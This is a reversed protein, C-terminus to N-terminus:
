SGNREKITGSKIRSPAFGMHKKFLRSFYFEDKYGVSVAAQRVSYGNESLLGAATELRYEILYDIPRIGLVKHFLYSFQEPKKKFHRAVGSLTLPETYHRRIFLAADNIFNLEEAEQKGIESCFLADFLQQTMFNMRFRSRIDHCHSLKLLEELCTNVAEKDMIDLEYASHIFDTGRTLHDYPDYYLNIHCFPESGEVYFTLQKGPCGHIVKGPVAAFDKSDFSIRAKGSIPFIFAARTTEYSAPTQGPLKTFSVAKLITLPFRAYEEALQNRFNSM